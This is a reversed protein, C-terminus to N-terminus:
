GKYRFRVAKSVGGLGLVSIGGPLTKTGTVSPLSAFLRIRTPSVTDFTTDNDTEVSGVGVNVWELTLVNFGTGNIVLPRSGSETFPQPSLSSISPRPAYDYESPAPDIETGATPVVIGEDNAVLSGVYPALIESEPSSGDHNTVVVEVQCTNAPHFGEGSTCKTASTEAPVTVQLEYASLATWRTAAVGGFTVSTIPPASAAFGSGYVDVVNGGSTPGGSPGVGSVSPRPSTSSGATYIYRSTSALPTTTLPGSATDLTVTVEVPTPTASTEGGTGPRPAEPPVTVSISNGDPTISTAPTAGFDVGAVSVGAGSLGAGTITVTNGGSVPGFAPKLATVSPQTAAPTLLRCLSTALGTAVPSGLGSALNYGPTASYGDNLGFIDNSGITIDNFDAGPAATAAAEYLAPAVFGLDRDHNTGNVALGACSSSSAIDTTLAAWMPASTSTGGITGWGGGSAQYFSTGTDEDADITVDPVERCPPEAPPTAPTPNECFAYAPTESYSNSVGAVGSDAQWAPSPWTDSIGGGGGGGLPGDNWVTEHPPLSDATLTTGGVGVVFDQSAPDDVQVPSPSTIPTSGFACDNSGSDGAAAFVSQGQAAAEEFITNEVEQAGPSAIQYAPECLGWSTSIVNATDANVMANYIDDTAFQTGITASPAEYVDISAHPALASIDEVDLVAEGMGPGPPIGGNVAVVHLHQLMGAAVSAGFYCTDFTSIDSRAFPELEFLAITEGEGLAGEEYLGNVAYAQALQNFTWGSEKEAKSAAARCANPGGDATRPQIRDAVAMAAARGASSSARPREIFNHPGVLDDLGLIATVDGAIPAQLEPATAASWGLIGDPLRYSRMSVHLARQVVAVTGAVPMILGNTSPASVSFGEARLVARVAAITAPTPGFESRFQRPTIFHGFSPSGPTNVATAYSELARPDRPSLAVGLQMLRTPALLGLARSGPLPVAAKGIFVLRSALLTALSLHSAESTAAASAKSGTAVSGVTLGVGVCAVVAVTRARRMPVRM